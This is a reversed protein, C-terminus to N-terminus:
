ADTDDSKDAPDKEEPEPANEATLSPQEQGAQTMARPDIDVVIELDDLTKLDDAYEAWHEEPDDGQARIMESPTMAGARVARTMALIEKDPELLPIAPTTWSAGPAEPLLGALVAAEMAWDWVGQCLLPIVIDEQWACVQAWHAIRGMRASSFNTQSYDGTLDEYTIGLGAAIRRLTRQPLADSTLQPPSATTVQKGPPLNMIMGPEFTDISDDGAENPGGLPTASGDMDTVFAAFCAAIKQKMLEADEYEDLDKMNVISTALWSVGRSEGAREVDYLHIIESAPVRKPPDVNRGSGPHESYLYYAVRRGLLDFEIGQIIPGGTPGKLATWATNLYDAELVQIQLPIPLGDSARRPRRRLLVEGDSYLGRMALRQIGYFTQRNDEECLVTEGWRRWLKLAAKNTDPNDGVPKPRIGRGITNNAIVNRGRKAYGNNRILDRAHQRLVTAQGRLAADADLSNRKWNDTRRGPQAAEYHRAAFTEVAARAKIRNLGYAPAISLLTRDWWTISPRKKM